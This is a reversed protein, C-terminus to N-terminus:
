VYLSLINVHLDLIAYLSISPAAASSIIMAIYTPRRFARALFPLISTHYLASLRAAELPLDSCAAEIGRPVASCLALLILFPTFPHILRLIPPAVDIRILVWISESSPTTNVDANPQVAQIVHQLNQVISRRDNIIAEQAADREVEFKARQVDLRERVSALDSRKVALAEREKAISCELAELRLFQTHEREHAEELKARLQALEQEHSRKLAAIERGKAEANARALDREAAAQDSFVQLENLTALERESAAELTAIQGRLADFQREAAASLARQVQGLAQTAQTVTADADAYPDGNDRHLSQADATGELKVAGELKVIIQSSPPM